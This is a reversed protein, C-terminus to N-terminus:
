FNSFSWFFPGSASASLIYFYIAKILARVALSLASVLYFCCWIAFRILSLIIYFYILSFSLWFCFCFSTMLSSEAAADCCGLIVALTTELELYSAGFGVLWVSFICWVSFILKFCTLVLWGLVAPCYFPLSLFDCIEPLRFCAREYPLCSRFGSSRFFAGFSAFILCFVVM